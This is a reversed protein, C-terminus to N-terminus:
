FEGLSRLAKDWVADMGQVAKQVSEFHRTAEMLEVMERTSNVNSMELFGQRLRGPGGLDRPEAMAGSVRYLGNGAAELRADKAPYVLKIRAVALEKQFVQGDDAVRFAGPQLFIEGQEGELPMGSQALVLRGRSDLRLGGGRSVYAGGNDLASFYGPGEIALDLDSGTRHMAGQRADALAGAQVEGGLTFLRKYGATNSNAINHAVTNVRNMDAQMSAAMVNLLESM